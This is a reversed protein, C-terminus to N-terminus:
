FKFQLIFSFYFILSFNNSRLGKNAKYSRFRLYINSYLQWWIHIRKDCCYCKRNAVIGCIMLSIETSNIQSKRCNWKRGRFCKQSSEFCSKTTKFVGRGILKYRAVLGMGNPKASVSHPRRTAGVFVWRLPGTRLCCIWQCFLKWPSLFHKQMREFINLLLIIFNYFIDFLSCLNRHYDIPNYRLCSISNNRWFWEHKPPRLSTFKRKQWSTVHYCGEFGEGERGVSQREKM